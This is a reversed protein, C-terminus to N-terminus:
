YKIVTNFLCVKEPSTTIVDYLRSGDRLPSFISVPTSTPRIKSRSLDAMNSGSSRAHSLCDTTLFWRM